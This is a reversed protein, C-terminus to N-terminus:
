LQYRIHSQRVHASFTLFADDVDDNPAEKEQRGQRRQEGGFLVRPRPDPGGPQPQKGEEREEQDMVNEERPQVKVLFPFEQIGDQRQRQDCM